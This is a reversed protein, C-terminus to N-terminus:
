MTFVMPIRHGVLVAFDFLESNQLFRPEIDFRLEENAVRAVGIENVQMPALTAVPTRILLAMLPSENAAETSVAVHAAVDDRHPSFRREQEVAAM